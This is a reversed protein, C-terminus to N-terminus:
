VKNMLSNSVWSLMGRERQLKNIIAKATQAWYNSFLCVSPKEMKTEKKLFIFDVISLWMSCKRYNGKVRLLLADGEFSYTKPCKCAQAGNFSTKDARDEEQQRAQHGGPEGTHLVLHATFGSKCVLKWWILFFIYIHICLCFLVFFM